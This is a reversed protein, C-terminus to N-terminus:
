YVALVLHPGSVTGIVKPTFVQGGVSIEAPVVTVNGLVTLNMQITVSECFNYPRAEFKIKGLCDGQGCGTEMSCPAEYTLSYSTPTSM